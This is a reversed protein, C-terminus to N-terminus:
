FTGLVFLPAGIGVLSQAETWADDETASDRSCLMSGLASWTTDLGAILTLAVTGVIFEDPILEGDVKTRVVATNAAAM